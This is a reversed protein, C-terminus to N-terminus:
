HGSSPPDRRAIDTLTAIVRAALAEVGDRDTADLRLVPWGAREVLAVTDSLARADEEALRYVDELSRGTHLATSGGSAHRARLRAARAATASELHVLLQPAPFRRVLAARDMPDADSGLLTVSRQVLGESLIPVLQPDARDAADILLLTEELWHFAQRRYAADGRPGAPVRARAIRTVDEQLEALWEPLQPTTDGSTLLRAALRPSRALAALVRPRGISGAIGGLAGRPVLGLRDAPMLWRAPRPGGPIRRGALASVLTTKGSAPAGVLEVRGNVRGNM